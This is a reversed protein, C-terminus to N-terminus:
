FRTNKGKQAAMQVEMMGENMSSGKIESEYRAFNQPVKGNKFVTMQEYGNIKDGRARKSYDYAASGFTSHGVWTRNGNADTHQTITTNNDLKLTDTVDGFQAVESYSARTGQIMSDGGSVGTNDPHTGYSKKYAESSMNGMTSRTYVDGRSSVHAIVDNNNIPTGNSGVAGGDAGNYIINYGGDETKMKSVDSLSAGSANITGSLGKNDWDVMNKAYCGKDGLESGNLSTNLDGSFTSPANGDQWGEFSMYMSTGDADKFKAIANDDPVASIGVDAVAGNATTVTGHFGRTGWMDYGDKFEFTSGDGCARELADNLGVGDANQLQTSSLYDLMQSKQAETMNGFTKGFSMPDAAMQSSATKLTSASLPESSGFGAKGLAESLKGMKGSAVAEDLAGRAQHAASGQMSNMVSTPDVPKNQLANSAAILGANNTFGGVTGLANGVGKTAGSAMMFMSGASIAVSDLLSAGLNATSLGLGSMIQTLKLGFQVFAIVAMMSVISYKLYYMMVLSTVVWLKTGILLGIELAYMMLYNVFVNHTLSSAFFAGFMPSSIYLAMMTIYHKVIEFILKIISYVLVIYMIVQIIMTVIGTNMAAEAESYMLKAIPNISFPDTNSKSDSPDITNDSLTKAVKELAATNGKTKGSKIAYEGKGEIVKVVVTSYFNNSATMVSNVLHPATVVLIVALIFKIIVQSWTDKMEVGISFFIFLFSFFFIGIAIFIGAARFFLMINLMNNLGTKSGGLLEQFYTTSPVFSSSDIVSSFCTLIIISSLKNILACIANLFAQLIQAM